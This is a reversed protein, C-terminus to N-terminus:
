EWLYFLIEDKFEDESDDEQSFDVINNDSLYKGAITFIISFCVLSILFATWFKKKM